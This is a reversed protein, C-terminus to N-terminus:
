KDFDVEHKKKIAYKMRKLRIRLEFIARRMFTPKFTTDEKKEINLVEQIKPKTDLYWKKLKATLIFWYKASLLVLSFTISKIVSLITKELNKYEFKIQEKDEELKIQGTQMQWARFYLMAFALTTSM